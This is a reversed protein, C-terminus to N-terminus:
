TTFLFYWFHLLLCVLFLLLILGFIHLLFSFSFSSICCSLTSSFHNIWSYQNEIYIIHSLIFSLYLFFFLIFLVFSLLYHMRNFTLINTLIFCRRSQKFKNPKYRRELLWQSFNQRYSIPLKEKNPTTTKKTETSVKVLVSLYAHLACANLIFAHKSRLWTKESEFEATRRRQDFATCRSRIQLHFQIWPYRKHLLEEESPNYRYNSILAKDHRTDHNRM